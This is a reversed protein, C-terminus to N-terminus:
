TSCLAYGTQRFFLGHGIKVCGPQPIHQVGRNVPIPSPTFYQENISELSDEITLGSKSLMTISLALQHDKVYLRHLRCTPHNVVYGDLRNM